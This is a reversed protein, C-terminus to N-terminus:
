AIFLALLVFWYICKLISDFIHHKGGVVTIESTQAWVTWEDTWFVEQQQLVSVSLFAITVRLSAWVLRRRFVKAQIVNANQHLFMTRPLCAPLCGPKIFQRDAACLSLSPSSSLSSLLANMELSFSFLHKFADTFICYHGPNDTSDDDSPIINSWFFSSFSSSHLHVLSCGDRMLNLTLRDLITLYSANGKGVVADCVLCLLTNMQTEVNVLDTTAEM